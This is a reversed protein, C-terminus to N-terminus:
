NLDRPTEKENNTTTNPTPTNLFAFLQKMVDAHYNAVAIQVEDKSLPLTQEDRLRRNAPDTYDM